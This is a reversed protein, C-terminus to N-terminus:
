SSKSRTTLINKSKKQPIESLIQKISERIFLRLKKEVNMNSEKLFLNNINKELQTAESNTLGFDKPNPETKEAGSKYHYFATAYEKKKSKLIKLYKEVHQVNENKLKKEMKGLEQYYKPSEQLHAHAIKAYMIWDKISTPENPTPDLDKHETEIKMGEYLDEVKIKSFDVNIYKGIQRAMDLTLIPANSDLGYPLKRKNTDPLEAYEVGKANPFEEKIVRKIIQRLERRFTMYKLKHLGM